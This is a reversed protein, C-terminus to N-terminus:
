PKGGQTAMGSMARKLFERYILNLMSVLMIGGRQKRGILLYRRITEPVSRALSFRNRARQAPIVSNRHFQFRKHGSSPGKTAM